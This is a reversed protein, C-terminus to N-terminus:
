QQQIWQAAQRVAAVYACGQYHSLEPEVRWTLSTGMKRAVQVWAATRKVPFLEDREGHIVYLPVTLQRKPQYASAVPIAYDILNPYQEAFFWSGNGGNSYGMVIIKDTNINWYKIALDLLRKVKQANYNTDWTEFEGDPTLIIANLDSLGPEALCSAFERYTQDGGAWHLAIVLPRPTTAAPFQVRIRWQDVSNPQLATEQIGPTTALKVFQRELRDTLDASNDNLKPSCQVLLLAFAGYLFYHM